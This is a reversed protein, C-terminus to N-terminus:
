LRFVLEREVGKYLGYGILMAGIGCAPAVIWAETPPWTNDYFGSRFFVLVWTLPNYDLLWSLDEGLHEPKYLIPTAFYGASLVVSIIHEFDRFMTTIAMCAMGIGLALMFLFVIGAPVVVLHVTVKADMFIALVVFLATMAFVLNVLAILVQSVPFVPMFVRLKRLLGQGGILSGASGNVSALFFQWPLLGCFLYLAYNDMDGFRLVRSFVFSLVILQLVPNLLTWGFGLVSNQYRMRLNAGVLERVAHRSRVLERWDNAVSAVLGARREAGYVVEPTPGGFGAGRGANGGTAADEGFSSM